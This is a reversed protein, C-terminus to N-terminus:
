VLIVSEDFDDAMKILGRASGPKLPKGLRVVTPMLKVARNTEGEIVILEGEHAAELLRDLCNRAENVSYTKM